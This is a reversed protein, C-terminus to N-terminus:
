ELRHRTDSADFGDITARKRDIDHIDELYPRGLDVSLDLKVAPRM